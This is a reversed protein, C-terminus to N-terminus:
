KGKWQIAHPPCLDRDEGILTAHEDCMPADCTRRHTVQEPPSMPFDCLKTSPRDCFQCKKPQPRKGSHLLHVVTGDPMKRWEGWNM